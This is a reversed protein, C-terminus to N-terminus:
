EYTIHYCGYTLEVMTKCDPCRQWGEGKALNLVSELANDTTCDGGHFAHKCLSCTDTDCSHCEARSTENNIREPLIFKGCSQNSCYTRDHTNFEVAANDFVRIEEESLLNGVLDFPIEQRCCRPPFLSEDATARIFLDKLCNVCYLDKCPAEIIENAGYQM